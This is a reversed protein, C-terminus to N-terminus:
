VSLAFGFCRKMVEADEDPDSYYNKRTGIKKFGNKSYLELAPINSARVELFISKVCIQECYRFVENLLVTAFGKKRFSEKVSIQIIEAEDEVVSLLVYGAIEENILKAFYTYGSELEGKEIYDELFSVASSGFDPYGVSIIGNKNKIVNNTNLKM